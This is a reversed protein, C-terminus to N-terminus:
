RFCIITMGAILNKSHSISCLVKKIGAIKIIKLMGARFLVEPKGSNNNLIEIENMKGPEKLYNCITKKILYRGALSRANRPFSFTLLEKKSFLVEPECSSFFTLFDEKRITEVYKSFTTKQKM